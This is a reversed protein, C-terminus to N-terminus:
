KQIPYELRRQNKELQKRLAANYNLHPIKNIDHEGKRIQEERLTRARAVITKWNRGFCVDMLENKKELNMGPRMMFMIAADEEETYRFVKNGPAKRADREVYQKRTDRRFVRYQEPTFHSYSAFWERLLSSQALPSTRDRSLVDYSFYRKDGGVLFTGRMRNSFTFTGSKTLNEALCPWPPCFYTLKGRKLIQVRFVEDDLEPIPPTKLDVGAPNRPPQIEFGARKVKRNGRVLAMRLQDHGLQALKGADVFVTEDLAASGWLKAVEDRYQAAGGSYICRDMFELFLPRYHNAAQAWVQKVSGSHSRRKRYFDTRRDRAKIFRQLNIAICPGPPLAPPPTFFAVGHYESRYHFAVYLEHLFSGGDIPFTSLSLDLKERFHYSSESVSKRVWRGRYMSCNAREIGLKSFRYDATMYDDSADVGKFSRSFAERLLQILKKDRSLNAMMASFIKEEEVDLEPYDGELPDNKMRMATRYLAYVKCRLLEAFAPSRSAITDHFGMLLGLAGWQLQGTMFVVNALLSPWHILMLGDDDERDWSSAGIAGHHKLFFAVDPVQTATVPNPSLDRDTVDATIHRLVKRPTYVQGLVYDSPHHVTVEPNIM